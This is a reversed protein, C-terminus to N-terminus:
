TLSKEVSNLTNAKKCSTKPLFKRFRMLKNLLALAM